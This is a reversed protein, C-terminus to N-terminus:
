GASINVPAVTRADKMRKQAIQKWAVQAEAAPGPTGTKKM